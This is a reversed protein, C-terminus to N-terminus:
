SFIFFRYYIVLIVFLIYFIGIILTIKFRNKNKNEEIDKYLLCLFIDVINIDNKCLNKEILSLFCGKLYIFLGICIFLYFLYLLCILKNYYIVLLLGIFPCTFHFVRIWEGIIDEKINSYISFRKIYQLIIKRRVKYINM